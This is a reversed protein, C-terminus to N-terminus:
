TQTTGQPKMMRISRTVRIGDDVSATVPEKGGSNQRFAFTHHKRLKGLGTDPPPGAVTDDWLQDLFSM